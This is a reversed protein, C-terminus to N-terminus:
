MATSFGCNPANASYDGADLDDAHLLETRIIERRWNPEHIPWARVSMSAADYSAPQGSENAQRQCQREANDLPPARGAVNAGRFTVRGSDVVTVIVPPPCDLMRRAILEHSATSFHQKLELL